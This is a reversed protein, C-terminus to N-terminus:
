FCFYLLYGTAPVCPRHCIRPLAQFVRLAACWDRRAKLRIVSPICIRITFASTTKATNSLRATLRKKLNQPNINSSAWYINLDADTVIFSKDSYSDLLRLAQIFANTDLAGTETTSNDFFVQVREAWGDRGEM